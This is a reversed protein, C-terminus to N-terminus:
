KKPSSSSSKGGSSKSTSPSPVRATDVSKMSHAGAPKYDSKRQGVPSAKTKSTGAQVPTTRKGYGDFTGGANQKVDRMNQGVKSNNIKGSGTQASSAGHFGFVLLMAGLFITISKFYKM